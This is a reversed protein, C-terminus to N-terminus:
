STLAPSFIRAESGGSIEDQEPASIIATPNTFFVASLNSNM